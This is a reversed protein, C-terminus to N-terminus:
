NLTNETNGTNIKRLIAFFVSFKLFNNLIKYLSNQREKENSRATISNSKLNKASSIALAGGSECAGSCRFCVSIRSIRNVNAARLQLILLREAAIGAKGGHM